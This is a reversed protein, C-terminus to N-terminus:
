KIMIFNEKHNMEKLHEVAENWQVAEKRVSNYKKAEEAWIVTSWQDYLEEWADDVEEQENMSYSIRDHFDRIAAFFAKNPVPENELVIQRIRQKLEFIDDQLYEYISEAIEEQNDLEYKAIKRNSGDEVRSDIPSLALRIDYLMFGEVSVTFDRLIELAQKILVFHETDSNKEIFRNIWDNPDDESQYPEIAGLQGFEKGTLIQLIDNKVLDTGVSLPKDLELVADIIRLRLMDTAHIYTEETGNNHQIIDVIEEKSPVAESIKNLVSELEDDMPAYNELAKKRYECCKERIANQLDVKILEKIQKKKYKEFSSKMGSVRTEIVQKCVSNYENYLEEMLVQAQKLYIEDIGDINQVITELVPTLLKNEVAEESSCDVRLLRAIPYNAERIQQEVIDMGETNCAPGSSVHNLVWFMMRKACDKRIARIIENSIQTDDEGFHSRQPDPRNMYIVADSDNKVTDMLSDGIGLSQSGMGITDVLVIKGADKKPFVCHINACKVSLYTYYKVSKDTSKYMAVYKEINEEEIRCAKKRLNPRLEEMHDIYKRLEQIKPGATSLTDSENIIQRLGEVEDLNTINKSDSEFITELYKNVIQVMENESFFTIEAYPKEVGETNTIISKAGTCDSGAASPIVSGSLGSMKQLVLSKGQGAKGVFSINIKDRSFRIKLRELESKCKQLADYFNSFSISEIKDAIDKSIGLAEFDVANQANIFASAASESAEVKKLADEIIRLRQKREHIIADIMQSISSM